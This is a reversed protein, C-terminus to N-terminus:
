VGLYAVIVDQNNQIEKPIGAAIKKGNNIVYLFDATGMVLEMDHEILFLTVGRDIIKKFLVNLERKEASNMGAAPEDLLLLEPNSALGRIIELLRQDGYALSGALNHAKDTLGVFDLLDRAKELIEKEQVRLKKTRFMADVVTADLNRHQGVLINELVTMNRFLNINQYTRSIGARNIQYPQKGDIREGKFRIEGDTAEYVGTLCNFLSTKGAGNPGILGTIRGKALSLSVDNVAKLGGFQLTLDKVQLLKEEHKM